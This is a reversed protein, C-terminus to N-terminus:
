AREGARLRASVIAIWIWALVVASAFAPSVLEGKSGSAIGAFAAFFLVGTAVSYIAWGREGAAAFRRAFIMCAAILGAFGIGGCIFHLLGHWGIANADAPTGPPFGLAPDASFFAAGVLGLGYLGLLAPGWAGGRGIRMAQRMGVAGAITLLGSILFNAIQIWGLEGNSLLSLSHRRIDFGERIAMQFLSLAIYIPGALIGCTLLARTTATTFGTARTTTIANM